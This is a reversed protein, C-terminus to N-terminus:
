IYELIKCYKKNKVIDNLIKTRKRPHIVIFLVYNKNRCYNLLIEIDSFTTEKSGIFFITKSKSKIKYIEYINDKINSNNLNKKM